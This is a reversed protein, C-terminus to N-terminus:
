SLQGERIEKVKPAFSQDFSDVDAESVVYCAPDHYIGTLNKMKSEDLVKVMFFPFEESSDMGDYFIRYKSASEFGFRHYYEPSGTIFVAPYGMEKAKELTYQILEKGIGKKQYDPHVSIPGFLLVQIPTGEHDIHGLAYVINGVLKGDQEYVYCLEPVFAKDNRLIHLIYHESCGPHYVNWFAERTLNENERYDHTEELRIM